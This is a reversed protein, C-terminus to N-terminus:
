GRENPEGEQRVEGTRDVVLEEYALEITDTRREVRVDKAIDVVQSVVIEKGLQPREDYVVVERVEGPSLVLGDVLVSPGGPATTITLVETVLEVQVTEERTRRERRVEVSGVRERVKQVDLIEERLEISAVPIRREGAVRETTTPLASTDEPRNQTM